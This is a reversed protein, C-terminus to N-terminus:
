SCGGGGFWHGGESERMRREAADAQQGEVGEAGDEGGLWGDRQLVQGFSAPMAQQLCFEILARNGRTKASTLLLLHSAQTQSSPGRM